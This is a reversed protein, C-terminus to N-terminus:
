SLSHLKLSQISDFNYNELKTTFNYYLQVSFDNSSQSKSYFKTIEFLVKYNRISSWKLNLQLQTYVFLDHNLLLENQHM